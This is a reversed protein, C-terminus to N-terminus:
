KKEDNIFSEVTKNLINMLLAKNKEDVKGIKRFLIKEEKTEIYENGTLYDISVNFYKALKQLTDTNPIAKGSEWYSVGTATIGMEEALEGQTINNNKRLEKIRESFVMNNMYIDGRNYYLNYCVM